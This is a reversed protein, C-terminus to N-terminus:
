GQGDLAESKMTAPLTLLVYYYSITHAQKSINTNVTIWHPITMLDLFNSYVEKM